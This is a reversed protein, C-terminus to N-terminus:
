INTSKRVFCFLLTVPFYIGFIRLMTLRIFQARILLLTSLTTQYNRDESHSIMLPACQFIPYHSYPTMYGNKLGEVGWRLACYWLGVGYLYKIETASSSRKPSGPVPSCLFDILPALSCKGGGLRCECILTGEM